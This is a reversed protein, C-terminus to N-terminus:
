RRRNRRRARRTKVIEEGTPEIHPLPYPMFIAGKVRMDEDYVPHWTGLGEEVLHEGDYVYGEPPTKAAM